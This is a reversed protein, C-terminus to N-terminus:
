IPQTFSQSMVCTRMEWFFRGSGWSDTTTCEKHTKGIAYQGVDNILVYIMMCRSPHRFIRRIKREEHHYKCDLWASMWPICIRRYLPPTHIGVSRSPLSASQVKFGRVCKKSRNWPRNSETELKTHKVTNYSGVMHISSEIM